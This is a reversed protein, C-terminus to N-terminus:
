EPKYLTEGEQSRFVRMSTLSQIERTTSKPSLSDPRVLITQSAPVRSCGGGFLRRLRGGAEGGGLPPSDQRKITAENLLKIPYKQRPWCQVFM